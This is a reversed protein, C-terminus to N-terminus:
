EHGALQQNVAQTIESHTARRGAKIWTLIESRLFFLKGDAPKHYPITRNHVMKHIYGRKYGILRELGEMDLLDDNPNSQSQESLVARVADQIILSFESLRIPSLIIDNTM